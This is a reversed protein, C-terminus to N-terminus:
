MRFQPLYWFPKGNSCRCELMLSQSSLPSFALSLEDARAIQGDRVLPNQYLNSYSIVSSDRVWAAAQLEVPILGFRVHLFTARTFFQIFKNLIYFVHIFGKYLSFGDHSM